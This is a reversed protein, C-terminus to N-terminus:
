IEGTRRFYKSGARPTLFGSFRKNTGSNPTIFVDTNNGGKKLYIEIKGNIFFGTVQMTLRINGKKDIVKDYKTVNLKNTNTNDAIIEGQIYVFEKEYSIFNANDTNTEFSGDEKQYNDVIIVFDKAEIAAAAIDFKVRAISDREAKKNQALCTIMSVTIVCISLIIRKM